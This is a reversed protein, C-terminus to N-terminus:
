FLISCLIIRLFVTKAAMLYSKSDLNAPGYILFGNMNLAAILLSKTITEEFRFCHKSELHLIGNLSQARANNLGDMKCVM